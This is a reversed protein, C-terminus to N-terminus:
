KNGKIFYMLTYGLCGLFWLAILILLLPVGTFFEISVVTVSVVVAFIIILSLLVGFPLELLKYSFNEIKSM